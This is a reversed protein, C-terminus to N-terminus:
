PDPLRGGRLARGIATLVKGPMGPRKPIEVRLVVNYGPSTKIM